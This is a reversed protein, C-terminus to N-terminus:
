SKYSDLRICCAENVVDYVSTDVGNHANRAQVSVGRNDEVVGDVLWV